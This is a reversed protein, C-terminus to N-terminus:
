HKGAYNVEEALLETIGGTRDVYRLKIPLRGWAQALWVEIRESERGQYTVHYTLMDQDRIQVHVNPEVKLTYREFKSGTTVMMSLEPQDLPYLALQYFMSLVDQAGAALPLQEGSGLQISGKDWDFDARYQGAKRDDRFQLPKLGNADILGRSSQGLKVTKFLAVLGTSQMTSLLTYHDGEVAWEHIAEGVIFAGEGKSVSFRMRGSAPLARTPAAAPVPVAQPAVPEVAAPVPTPTATTSAVDSASSTPKPKPAAAAAPKPKAIPPPPPPLLTANIRSEGEDEGWDPWLDRSGM